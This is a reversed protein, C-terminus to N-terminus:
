PATKVKNLSTKLITTSQDEGRLNVGSKLKLNVLTDLTSNLNYVGSPLYVEDGPEASNIAAQIAIGDDTDNDALDANYDLVNLIRGTTTPSSHVPHM